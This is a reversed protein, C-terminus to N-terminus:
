GGGGGVYITGYDGCLVVLWGCVRVSWFFWRGFVAVAFHVAAAASDAHGDDAGCTDELEGSFEAVFGVALGDFPEEALGLRGDDGGGSGANSRGTEGVLFRRLNVVVM